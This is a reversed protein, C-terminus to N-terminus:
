SAEATEALRGLQIAEKVLKRLKPEEIRTLADEITIWETCRLGKEPWNELQRIFRLIFVRVDHDRGYKTYRYKGIPIPDIDGIVGAEEWAEARAAEAPTQYAEIRGKPFVWRRGSRSTIMLVLGDDRVPIAAAQPIPLPM